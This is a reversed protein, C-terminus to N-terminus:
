DTSTLAPRALRRTLELISLDRYVGQLIGGNDRRAGLGNKFKPALLSELGNEPVMM